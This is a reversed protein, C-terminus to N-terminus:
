RAQCGFGQFAFGLGIGFNNTISNDLPANEASSVRHRFVLNRHAILLNCGSWSWRVDASNDPRSPYRQAGRLGFSVVTKYIVICHAFAFLTLSFLVASKGIRPRGDTNNPMPM